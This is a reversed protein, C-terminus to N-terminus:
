CMGIGCGGLSWGKQVSGSYTEIGAWARSLYIAYVLDHNEWSMRGVGLSPGPIWRMYMLVQAPIKQQLLHIYIVRTIYMYSSWAPAPCDKWFIILVWLIKIAVLWGAKQKIELLFPVRGWLFWWIGWKKNSGPGCISICKLSTLLMKLCFTGFWACKICIELLLSDAPQYPHVKSHM